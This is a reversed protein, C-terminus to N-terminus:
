VGIMEGEFIRLTSRLELAALVHEERLPGDHGALDAITRAVARVRNFGRASLRAEVLAREVVAAAEHTLPAHEDLERSSLEANTRVGRAASRKRVM